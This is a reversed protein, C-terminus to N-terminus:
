NNRSTVRHVTELTPMKHKWTSCPILVIPVWRGNSAAVHLATKGSYSRRNILELEEDDDDSSSYTDYEENRKNNKKSTKMNQRKQSTTTAQKPKTKNKKKEIVSKHVNDVNCLLTIIESATKEDESAAAVHVVTMGDDDKMSKRAGVKLLIRVTETNGIGAALHLPTRGYANQKNVDDDDHDCLTSVVSASRSSDPCAAALHLPTNQDANQCEDVQFILCFGHSSWQNM